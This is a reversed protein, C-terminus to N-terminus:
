ARASGSINFLRMANDCTIDAMEQPAKGRLEALFACVHEVLGPQNRRGRMPVPALYPSDTEILLRNEEVAQAAARLKAANKFTLSGSFSIHFGLAEYELASERSGSFCHIIGGAHRGKRERLLTLLDGHADRVHLIVPLKHSYAMDMQALLIEKQKDRPSFDYHYDLGIEGLAVVKPRRLLTDLHALYDVPAKEAVHPHVGAAAYIFSYQAALAICRQSSALDSGVTVCHRMGQEPLAAIIQERDGEFQEDDLHCHSDFLHTM